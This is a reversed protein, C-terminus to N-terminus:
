ANCSERGFSGLRRLCIKRGLVRFRHNHRWSKLPGSVQTDTFKRFGSIFPYLIPLWAGWIAYQLFMMMSLRTRISFGGTPAPMATSQSM